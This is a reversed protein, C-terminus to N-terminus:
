MKDPKTSVRVAVFHTFLEERGNNNKQVDDM